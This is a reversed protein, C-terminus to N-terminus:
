LNNHSLSIPKITEGSFNRIKLERKLKELMEEM